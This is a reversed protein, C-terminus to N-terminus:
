IVELVDIDLSSLNQYCLRDVYPLYKIGGVLKALLLEKFRRLLSNTLHLCLDGYLIGYELIVLCTIQKNIDYFPDVECNIRNSHDYCEWLTICCAM